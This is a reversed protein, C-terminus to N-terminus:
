KDNGAVGDTLRDLRHNSQEQKRTHYWNAPPQTMEPNAYDPALTAFRTDDEFGTIGLKDRPM